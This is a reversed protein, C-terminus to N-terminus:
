EKFTRLLRDFDEKSIIDDTAVIPISPGILPDLARMSELVTEVDKNRLEIREFASVAARFLIVEGKLFLMDWLRFLNSLNLQASFLCRFWPVVITSPHIGIMSLIETVM